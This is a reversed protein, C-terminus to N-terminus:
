TLLVLVALKSHLILDWGSVVACAVTNWDAVCGCCGKCKIACCCLYSVVVADLALDDM